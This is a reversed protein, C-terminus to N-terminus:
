IKHKEKTYKKERDKGIEKKRRRADIVEQSPGERDDEHLGVSELVTFITHKPVVEGKYTKEVYTKVKQLVKKPGNFSVDFGVGIASSGGWVKKFRKRLDSIVEKGRTKYDSKFDIGLMWNEDDAEDITTSEGMLSDYVSDISDVAGEDRYEVSLTGRDKVSINSIQPNGKVRHTFHSMKRSDDGFSYDKKHTKNFDFNRPDFDPSM